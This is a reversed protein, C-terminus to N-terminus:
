ACASGAWRRRRPGRRRRARAAFSARRRSCRRARRSTLAQTASRFCSPIFSSPSSRSRSSSARGRGISTSIATPSSSARAIDYGCPLVVIVDPDRAVLEDFTMWPSHKGATGFLNTGGALEVLTPMWNGAAMLPEVWEICAVTPRNGATRARVGVADMRGQLSATLARGREEIGLAAAVRAIDRWIDDLANPELSVIAPRSGIIQCVAAEVDKTSVACVECQSQTIIVDPRLAELAAADVRYVALGEQVIAKVRQDIEYSTGDTPFKPATVSPLSKVWVPFDCEHSRGVLQEGAGLACVIETSSAILSVIRM